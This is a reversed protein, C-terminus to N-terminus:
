LLVIVESVADLFRGVNDFLEKAVQCSGRSVQSRLNRINYVLSQVISHSSATIMKTHHRCIRVLGQLGLMVVERCLLCDFM